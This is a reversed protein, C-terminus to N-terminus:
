FEVKAPVDVRMVSEQGFQKKYAARIEDLAKSSKADDQYVIVLVKTPERVIKGDQGRWQGDANVVTLGDPFLPTVTKALFDSWDEESVISGDPKTMGFYLESKMWRDLKTAASPTPNSGYRTECGSAAVLCLIAAVLLPTLFRSKM